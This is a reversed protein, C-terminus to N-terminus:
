VPLLGLAVLDKEARAADVFELCTWGLRAPEVLNVPRDDLYVVRQGDAPLGFRRAAEDFIAPEPKVLGMRASYLGEDFASTFDADADLDDAFTAPMNSLFVVRHGAARLRRSLALTAPKRHLSAPIGAVMSAVREAPVGGRAALRQVLEAEPMTGRDFESWPSGLVFDEFLLHAFERASADDPAREPFWRRVVEPPSWELFVGGLDWM